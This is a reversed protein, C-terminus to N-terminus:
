QRNRKNTLLKLSVREFESDTPKKLLGMVTLVKLTIDRGGRCITKNKASHCIHSGQLEVINKYYDSLSDPELAIPDSGAFPCTRCPERQIPTQPTIKKMEIGFM